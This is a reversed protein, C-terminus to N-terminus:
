AGRARGRRTRRRPPSPGRDQCAVARASHDGHERSSGLAHPEYRTRSRRARRKWPTHCDNCGAVTVLYKGRAVKAADDDGARSPTPGSHLLSLASACRQSCRPCTSRHNM